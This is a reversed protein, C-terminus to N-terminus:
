GLFLSLSLAFSNTPPLFLYLFASTVVCFMDAALIFRLIGHSVIFLANHAIVVSGAVVIVSVVVVHVCVM